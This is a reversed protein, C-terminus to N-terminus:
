AYRHPQRLESACISDNVVVQGVEMPYIALGFIYAIGPHATTGDPINVPLLQGNVVQNGNQMTSFPTATFISLFDYEAAMQDESYVGVYYIEGPASDTDVVFETGGRGLSAGNFVGGAM